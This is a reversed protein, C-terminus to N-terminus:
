CSLSNCNMPFFMSDIELLKNEINLIIMHFINYDSINCTMQQQFRTKFNLWSSRLKELFLAELGPLANMLINKDSENLNIISFYKWTTQIQYVTKDFWLELFILKQLLNSSEFVPIDKSFDNHSNKNYTEKKTM